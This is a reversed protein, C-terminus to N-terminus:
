SLLFFTNDTCAYTPYYRPITSYYIHPYLLICRPISYYRPISNYGLFLTTHITDPFNICFICFVCLLLLREEGRREKDSIQCCRM